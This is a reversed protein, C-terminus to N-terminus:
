DFVVTKRNIIMNITTIPISIAILLLYACAGVIIAKIYPMEATKFFGYVFDGRFLGLIYDFILYLLAPMGEYVLTDRPNPKVGGLETFYIDANKLSTRVKDMLGSKIASGSGYHILVRSGGYKKVYEAVENERGKGFVFETPSYFNFNDM